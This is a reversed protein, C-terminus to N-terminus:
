SSPPLVIFAEGKRKTKSEFERVAEAAVRGSATIVDAAEEPGIGYVEAVKAVSLQYSNTEIVDAGAELFSSITVRM